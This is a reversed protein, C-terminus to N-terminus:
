SDVTIKMVSLRSLISPIDDIKDLVFIEITYNGEKEPTWGVYVQNSQGKALVGSQLSIYRAIGDADLIQVIVAYQQNARQTNTINVPISIPQGSLNGDVSSRDSIIVKSLPNSDFYIQPFTGDDVVAAVVRSLSNMMGTVTNENANIDVTVDEWEGREEDYHLLRVNSEDLVMSEDYPITVEVQGDFDISSADLDFITGATLFESDDLRVIGHEKDESIEDFINELTQLGESEVKVQGNSGLSDFRITVTESGIKITTEVDQGSPMQQMVAGGGGKGGGGGSRHNDSVTALGALADLVIGTGPRPLGGGGGGPDGVRYDHGITFNGLSSTVGTVTKQSSDMGTTMDLWGYKGSAISEPDFQLVSFLDTSIIEDNELNVNVYSMTVTIESSSRLRADVLHLEYADGIADFDYINVEPRQDVTFPTLEALGSEIVEDFIARFPARGQAFYSATVTDGAETHLIDEQDSSQIDDVVFSGVYTGTDTGTETLRIKIGEADSNSTANAEITEVTSNDQNATGDEVRLTVTSGISYESQDLAITRPQLENFVLLQNQGVFVQKRLAGQQPPDHLAIGVVFKSFNTAMGTVTQHEADRSETIDIVGSPVEHFMDIEETTHGDPLAKGNYSVTLHAFSNPVLDDVTSVVYCLDISLYRSNNPTDCTSVYLTGESVVSDFTISANFGALEVVSPTGIPIAFQTASLSATDFTSVPSSSPEYSSNGAFSAQVTWLTNASDPSSGESSYSGGADTLAPSLGLSGTGNFLITAGVIGVNDDIDALIGDVAFNDGESVVNPDTDVSLTTVHKLVDINVPESAVKENGNSDLLRAIIQRTGVASSNYPYPVPGWTSGNVPIDPTSSGDGWEITISDTPAGNTIGAAKVTVGWKVALGPDPSQITISPSAEAATSVSSFFIEDNADSSDKWIIYLRDQFTAMRALISPGANSSLNIPDGINLGNNTVQAMFIDGSGINDDQWVLFLDEQNSPLISLRLGPMVNANSSIAVPPSFTEGNDTSNSLYVQNFPSTEFDDLWAVYIIGSGSIALQSEFSFGTNNSVNIPSVFDITDDVINVTGKSFFVDYDPNIDNWVLYLDDPGYAVIKPNSGFLAPSNITTLNGFSIGGDISVRVLVAQETGPNSTDDQWSVFVKGSESLTIQPSQSFGVNDSLNVPTSFTEGANTSNTFFIDPIFSGDIDDEWVVFVSSGSAAIIPNASTGPNNSLNLPTGFSVTKDVNVIGRIFYIEGGDADSWVVYIDAGSTAIRAPNSFTADNSLNVPTSFTEGANTSNTFFIDQQGPVDDTWVTLVTGDDSVAIDPAGSSGTTNSINTPGGITIAEATSLFVLIGLFSYGLAMKVYILSKYLTKGPTRSQKEILAELGSARREKSRFWM